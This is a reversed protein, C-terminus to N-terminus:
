ASGRRQHTRGRTRAPGVSSIVVRAPQVVGQVLCVLFGVVAKGSTHSGHIIGSVLSCIYQHVGTFYTSSQPPSICFHDYPVVGIM